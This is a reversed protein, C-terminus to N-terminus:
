YGGGNARQCRALEAVMLNGKGRLTSDGTSASMLACASLYHGTFHGRLEVGPKEWGGLPEATSPLGATIRFTHLLRDTELGRLFERNREVLELLAPDTLRISGLDFPQAKAAITDKVTAARAALPVLASAAMFQRRTMARIIRAFRPRRAAAEREISLPCPTCRSPKASRRGSSDMTLWSPLVSCPSSSAARCISSIPSM